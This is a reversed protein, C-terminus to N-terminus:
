AERGTLNYVFITASDPVIAAQAEEFLDEYRQGTPYGTALAFSDAKAIIKEM